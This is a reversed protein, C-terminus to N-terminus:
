KENKSFRKESSLKQATKSNAAPGTNGLDEKNEGSLYSLSPDFVLPFGVRV